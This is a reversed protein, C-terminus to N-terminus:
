RGRKWESFLMPMKNKVMYILRGTILALISARSKLCLLMWKMFFSQPKACPILEQFLTERYREKMWALRMKHTMKSRRDCNRQLASFVYRIYMCGLIDRVEKTCLGWREYQELIIKTRHCHLEYYDPVYKTTLSGEIRKAYHYPTTDLINMSSIDMCYKVNFVIDEILTIKEFQLDLAKLYSLDYMKNWAYGYLLKKELEVIHPRLEEASRFTHRPYAIEVSNVQKGQADYYVEKMGWLVLQAPNEELSDKVQQLLSDEVVDDADMFWIYRGQAKKMGVNRTLSLGLNKENRYLRIREDERELKQCLAASGDVSCDDILLLEFDSCTQKLVSYVADQLYNEVGYVPMVISFFPQTAM